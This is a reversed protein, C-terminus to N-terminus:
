VPLDDWRWPSSPRGRRRRQVRRQSVGGGERLYIRRVNVTYMGGRTYMKAWVPPSSRLRPDTGGLTLTGAVTGDRKMRDSRTFCLAFARKRVAGAAHMQAWFSLRADNMGLIGDALQTGFMGTLRYQCGFNLSFAYDAARAEEGPRSSRRSLGTAGGEAKALLGRDHSGGAYAM